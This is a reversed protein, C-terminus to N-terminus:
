TKRSQSPKEDFQIYIARSCETIENAAFFQEMIECYEEWTQGKADFALLTGITTM